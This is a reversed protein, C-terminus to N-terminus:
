EEESRNASPNEEGAKTEKPEQEPEAGEADTGPEGAPGASVVVMAPRLLRDNLAYGKRAVRIVEGEGAEENPEYGTSEHRHPDFTKGEPNIEEVGHEKLISKIQQHVMEFGQAIGKAEPHNEASQLGLEFNDLVPLLDQLLSSTAYKRTEEKERLSRRRYNELEAVSRIYQDYHTKSEERAAQLEEEVSPEAPEDAEGSSAQGAAEETGPQAESVAKASPSEEEETANRNKEESM